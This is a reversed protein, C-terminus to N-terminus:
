EAEAATVEECTKEKLNIEFRHSWVTFTIKEGDESLTINEFEPTSGWGNALINTGFSYIEPTDDFLRIAYTPAHPIGSTHMCIATGYPTEFVEDKFWYWNAAFYADILEDRTMKRWLDADVNREKWTEVKGLRLFTLIAQERTFTGKPDFRTESVGKMLGECVCFKVGDVAWQSIEDTDEFELDRIHFVMSYTAYLRYLM